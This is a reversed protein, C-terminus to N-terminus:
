ANKRRDAIDTIALRGELEAKRPGLVAYVRNIKELQFGHAGRLDCAGDFDGAQALPEDIHDLFRSMVNVLGLCYDRGVPDKKYSREIERRLRYVALVAIEGEGRLEKSTRTSM